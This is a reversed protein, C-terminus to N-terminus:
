GIWVGGNKHQKAVKIAALANKIRFELGVREIKLSSALREVQGLLKLLEQELQYLDAQEAYIDIRSLSSLIECGMEQIIPAGWVKWRWSELGFLDNQKADISEELNTISGDDQNRIYLSVTLSM